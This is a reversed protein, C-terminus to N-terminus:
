PGFLLGVECFFTKVSSQPIVDVFVVGTSDPEDIKDCSQHTRFTTCLAVFQTASVLWGCPNVELAGEDWSNEFSDTNSM